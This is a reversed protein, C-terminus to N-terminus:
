RKLKETAEIAADRVDKFGDARMAQVEQLASTDGIVGLAYVANRRVHYDADGLAKKLAGSASRAARGIKGLTLSANRRVDVNDSGLAAALAPVAHAADPGFKGLDFAARAQVAPEKDRVKRELDEIEKRNVTPKSPCGLMLMSLLAVLAQKM